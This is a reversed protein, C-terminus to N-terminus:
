SVGTRRASSTSRTRRVPGVVIWDEDMALSTVVGMEPSCLDTTPPHPAPNRGSDLENRVRALILLCPPILFDSCPASLERQLYYSNQFGTEVSGPVASARELFRPSPV